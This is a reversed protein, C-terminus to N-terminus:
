CLICMVTSLYAVLSCQTLYYRKPVWQLSEINYYNVDLILEDIVKHAESALYDVHNNYIDKDHAKVKELKISLKLKKVIELITIWLLNNSQIKFKKRISM